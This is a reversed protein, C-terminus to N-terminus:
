LLQANGLPRQTARARQLPSQWQSGPVRGDPSPPLRDEARVSGKTLSTRRANVTLGSLHQLQRWFFDRHQRLATAAVSATPYQRVAIVPLREPPM